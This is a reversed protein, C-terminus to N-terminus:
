LHFAERVVPFPCVLYGILSGWFAGLLMKGASIKSFLGCWLRVTSLSEQMLSLTVTDVWFCSSTDLLGLCPKRETECSPSFFFFFSQPPLFLMFDIESQEKELYSAKSALSSKKFRRGLSEIIKIKVETHLFFLKLCKYLIETLETWNRRETTGSEKRSWSDCCVLGGQGDGVGPTWESERGDLWHHWGAM